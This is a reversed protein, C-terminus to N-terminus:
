KFISKSLIKWTHLDLIAGIKVWLVILPNLLKSFHGKSGKLIPTVWHGSHGQEKQIELGATCKNCDCGSEM